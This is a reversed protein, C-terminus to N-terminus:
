MLSCCNVDAGNLPPWTEEYEQHRDYYSCTRSPHRATQYSNQSHLGISMLSPGFLNDSCQGYQFWVLKAKRGRKEFSKLLENPDAIGSIRVLGEENM